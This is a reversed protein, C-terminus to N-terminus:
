QGDLIAVRQEKAARIQDLACRHEVDLRIQYVVDLAVRYHGRPTLPTGVRGVYRLYSEALLGVLLQRCCYGFAREFEVGVHPGETLRDLLHKREVDSGDVLASALRRRISVAPLGVYAAKVRKLNAERCKRRVREHRAHALVVRPTTTTLLFM